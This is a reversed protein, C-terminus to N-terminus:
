AAKLKKNFEKDLRELYKEQSERKKKPFEKELPPLLKSWVLQQKYQEFDYTNNMYDLTMGMGKALKEASKNNPANKHIYDQVEKESPNVKYKSEAFKFFKTRQALGEEATTLITEDDMEIDQLTAILKVRVVWKKLDPNDPALENGKAMSNKGLVEYDINKAKKALEEIKKLEETTYKTNDKTKGGIVIDDDKQNLIVGISDSIKSDSNSGGFQIGEIPETSNEVDKDSNNLNVQGEKNNPLLTITLLILATVIAVTVLIVSVKGVKSLEKFKEVMDEFFVKM